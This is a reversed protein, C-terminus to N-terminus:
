SDLWEIIPGMMKHKQESTQLTLCYRTSQNWDPRKWFNLDKSTIKWNYWSIWKKYIETITDMGLNDYNELISTLM